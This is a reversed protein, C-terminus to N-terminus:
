PIYHGIQKMCETRSFIRGLEAIDELQLLSISM